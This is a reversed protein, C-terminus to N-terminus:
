EGYASRETENMHIYFDSVCLVFDADRLTQCVNCVLMFM